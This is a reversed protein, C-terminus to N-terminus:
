VSSFGSLQLNLEILVALRRWPIDSMRLVVEFYAICPAWDCTDITCLAVAGLLSSPIRRSRSATEENDTLRKV